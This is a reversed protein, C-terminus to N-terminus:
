QLSDMAALLADCGDLVDSKTRDSYIMVQKWEESAYDQTGTSRHEDTGTGSGKGEDAFWEEQKSELRETFNEVQEALLKKVPELRLKYRRKMKKVWMAQDRFDPHAGKTCFAYTSFSNGTDDNM